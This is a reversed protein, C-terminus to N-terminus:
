LGHIEGLRRAILDRVDRFPNVTSIGLASCIIAMDEVPSLKQGKSEGNYEQLIIERSVGRYGHGIISANRLAVLRDIRLLADFVTAFSAGNMFEATSEEIWPAKPRRDRCASVLESQFGYRKSYEILERAKDSKSEGALDDFDIGLDFCLDAIESRSFYECLILRLQRGQKTNQSGDGAQEKALKARYRLSDLVFRRLDPRIALSSFTEKLTEVETDFLGNVLCILVAGQFRILRGLFSVYRGNDWAIRANHFLEGIRAQEQGDLLRLFDRRIEQLERRIEGQSLAIAEELHDNAENLEFRLRASGYGLLALALKDAQSKRKVLTLAAPFDFRDLMDVTSCEHMVELFQRGIQLPLIEGDEKRHYLVRVRDGFVHVGQLLLATRCAALGGLPLLYCDSIAPSASAHLIKGYVCFTEDYVHPDIPPQSGVLEHRTEHIRDGYHKSVLAALIQAYYLTDAARSPQSEDAQDTGIFVLRLVMDDSRRLIYDLGAVVRPYTVKQVMAELNDLIDQGAYRVEARPPERGEVLLERTGVNIFVITSM